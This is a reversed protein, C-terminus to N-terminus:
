LWIRDLILPNEFFFQFTITHPQFSFDWIITGLLLCFFEALVYHQMCKLAKM